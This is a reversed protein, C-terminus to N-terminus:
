ARRTNGDDINGMAHALDELDRIADRHQLVAAAHRRQRRRLRRGIGDDAEHDPPRDAVQKRGAGGSRGAVDHQLDLIARVLMEDADVERQPGAFDHTDGSEFAGALHLQRSRNEAVLREGGALDRQQAARGGRSRRTFRHPAAHSEQRVIALGLPQPKALRQPVIRHHHLPAEGAGQRQGRPCDRGRWRRHATGCPRSARPPHPPARPAAKPPLWCFTITARQSAASGRRQITASGVRPM